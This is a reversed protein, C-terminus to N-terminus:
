FRSQAAAIIKLAPSSNVFRREEHFEANKKLRQIRGLCVAMNAGAIAQLTKPRFAESSPQQRAM